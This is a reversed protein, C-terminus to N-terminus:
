DFMTRVKKIYAIVFEVGFRRSVSNVADNGFCAMINLYVMVKNVVMIRESASLVPYIKLLTNIIKLYIVVMNVLVCTLGFDYNLALRVIAFYVSVTDM